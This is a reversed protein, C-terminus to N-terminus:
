DYNEGNENAWDTFTDLGEENWWDVFAEAQSDCNFALLVQHIPINHIVDEEISVNNQEFFPRNSM